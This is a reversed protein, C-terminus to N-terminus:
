LIAKWFLKGLPVSKLRYVTPWSLSKEPPPPSGIIFLSTLPRRYKLLFFVYWIRPNKQPPSMKIHCRSSSASQHCNIRAIQQRWPRCPLEFTRPRRHDLHKVELTSHLWWSGTMRHIWAHVAEAYSVECLMPTEKRFLVGYILRVALLNQLPRYIDNFAFFVTIFM